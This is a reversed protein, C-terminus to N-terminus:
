PVLVDQNCSLIQMLEEEFLPCLRLRNRFHQWRSPFGTFRGGLKWQSTWHFTFGYVTRITDVLDWLITILRMVKGCFWRRSLTLTIIIMLM